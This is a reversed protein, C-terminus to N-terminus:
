FKERFVPDAPYLGRLKQMTRPVADRSNKWDRGANRYDYMGTFWDLDEKVRLLNEEMVKVVTNYFWERHANPLQEKAHELLGAFHRLCFGKGEEARRRFEPEKLLSFFTLYYRNMNAENRKCIYCSEQKEKAWQLLSCDANEKKKGGFVPRKGPMTFNEAETQFEQILGALYSQMILANGLANGYDYMKQFHERCFGQRDTVGRVEPEMYSAGPGLVYRITRQETMRELYCFPCEDDSAFAEQVPITDIQEKM